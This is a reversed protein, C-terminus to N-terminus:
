PIVIPGAVVAFLITLVVTGALLYPTSLVIGIVSVVLAGLLLVLALLPKFTPRSLTLAREVANLMGETGEAKTLLDIIHGKEGRGVELLERVVAVSPFNALIICPINQEVAIQALVLGSADKEDDDNIMRLDLIALDIDSQNLEGRATALDQVIIVHYGQKELFRRQTELFDPDNDALLITTQSM